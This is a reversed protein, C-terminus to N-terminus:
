PQGEGYDADNAAQPLSVLVWCGVRHANGASDTVTEWETKIGYGMERLEFVRPNPHYCNLHDRAYLSTLRGHKELHTLIRQRQAAASTSKPSAASM